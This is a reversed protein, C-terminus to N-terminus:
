VITTVKGSDLDYRGGVIKLKGEQIRQALLPSRDTLQSVQYRINAVVANDVPDGSLDKALKVAPAIPEVFQGISGPLAKGEVAATVAGCREHGLVMLLPAELLLASYEISGLTEPTVINGAVRVDFLDGLGEDFIIEAAVRSDACSLLTAYPHQARAIESLRKPSQDPYQRQQQVFRQNGDLLRQLAEDPSLPKPNPTAARAPQGNWLWSGATAAVIGGAGVFKLLDRRGIFGYHHSM